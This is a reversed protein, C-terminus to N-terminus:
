GRVRRRSYIAVFVTVFTIIIGSPEPVSAGVGDFSGGSASGLANGFRTRWFTYDESGVSGNGSGDAGTGSPVSMGVSNRWVAYDAADVVGNNNYDGPAHPPPVVSWGIDSLAAADVATVQRRTAPAVTSVMIATQAPGGGFVTSTVGAAWHDGDGSLPVPGGYSSSAAAGEFASLLVLSDFEPAGGFGLVHGIEHLAVTYLDTKGATPATTHQYHWNTDNDFSISGGWTAFGTPEGRNDLAKAFTNELNAIPTLDASAPAGSLTTRGWELVSGPASRALTTDSFTQAGAFIRFEDAPIVLNTLTKTGAGNPNSFRAKWSWAINVNQSTYTPAMIKDLTDTLINSYYGAAADLAAKAQNAQTTGSNFFPSSLGLTNSPDYDIKITVAAAPATIWIAAALLLGIRSRRNGRM